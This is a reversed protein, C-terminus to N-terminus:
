AVEIGWRRLYKEGLERLEERKGKLNCSKPGVEFTLKRVRGRGALDMTITAREVRLLALPLNDQDIETELSDYMAERDGCDPLSVTFQKRDNGLVSLRMRRIAVETIGDEADTPFAFSRHKLDDVRYPCADPDEPALSVGLMVDAFIEQLPRIVKRGGRAYMDLTGADRDFAYVIEFAHRRKERVLQEEDNWTIDTDPYDSLYVFFYDLASTRRFVEVRSLRGRGEAQVFFASIADAFRDTATTDPPQKPLSNRKEWYRPPLRDAHAFTVAKAWTDPRRLLAWMAKDYRGDLRALSDADSPDHSRAAEALVRMGEETAVAHLDQMDLEIERRAREPLRLFADYVSQIQTEGIRDWAIPMEHGRTEFFEKLLANSVQRLVTKPNYHAM